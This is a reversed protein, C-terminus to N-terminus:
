LQSLNYCLNPWETLAKNTYPVLQDLFKKKRDEPLAYAYLWERYLENPYMIAEKYKRVIKELKPFESLLSHINYEIEPLVRHIWLIYEVEKPGIVALDFDIMKYTFDNTLFNHHVVDGHLITPNKTKIPVMSRLAIEGYLLLQRTENYGIYSEIFFAIEKIKLSRNQWKTFLNFTHLDSCDEWAIVKNTEHLQTLLSFVEKRDKVSGYSVAHTGKFWPQIIFDPQTSFIVPLVFPNEVNQLENHIFRIKEAQEVSPYKKVSFIGNENKWKWVNKKIQRIYYSM